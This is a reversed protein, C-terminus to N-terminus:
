AIERGLAANLETIAPEMVKKALKALEAAYNAPTALRPDSARDSRLNPIESGLMALARKGMEIADRAREMVGEYRKIIEALQEARQNASEYCATRTVLSSQQRKIIEAQQAILKAMTPAAAIFDGDNNIWNTAYRPSMAVAYRNIGNHNCGVSAPNIDDNPRMGTSWEGQTRKADLEAIRAVEAELEQQSMIPTM